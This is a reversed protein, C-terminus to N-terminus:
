SEKSEIEAILSKLRQADQEYGLKRCGELSRRLIAIGDNKHGSAVLIQGFEEGITVIGQLRGMRDVIAYAEAIRPAADAVQNQNM